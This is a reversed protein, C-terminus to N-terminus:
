LAAALVAAVTLFGVGLLVAHVAHQIRRFKARAIVVLVQVEDVNHGDALRARLEDASLRHWTPWGSGALSPRVAFLLLVTATLLAAVGITGVAVAAGPLHLDKAASIIGALGAGTLALLLSAKGDSRALEGRIMAAATDAPTPQATRVPQPETTTM